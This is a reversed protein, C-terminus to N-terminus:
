PSRSVDLRRLIGLLAFGFLIFMVGLGVVLAAVGFAVVSTFLSARLFSADQVTDRAPDDQPLEAYTKGGGAELAHEKIVAAEAYATFPGEVEEGAFNEADDSVVIKEDALERQVVFYTILGLVIMIGGAVFSAIAVIKPMREMFMEKSDPTPSSSASPRTPIPSLCHTLRPRPPRPAPRRRAAQPPRHRAALLALAIGSASVIALVLSSRAFATALADGAADGGEAEDTTTEAYVTAVIATMVAAGVYRAMNSIGSASGVQEEPVSSTAISSCPGNSLAMGVAILVIPIVFAGYEWSADTGLFLVFGATM